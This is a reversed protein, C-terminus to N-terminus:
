KYSQKRTGDAEFIKKLEKETRAIPILLVTVQVVLVAAGVIGIRNENKGYVCVMGFVSFPLLMWGMRLWLRGFYWHAYQWTDMNLRSMKTRYGYFDNIQGPPHKLFVQGFVIMLVPVAMNNILMFVWFWMKEDGENQANYIQRGCLQLIQREMKTLIGSRGTSKKFM